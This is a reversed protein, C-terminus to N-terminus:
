KKYITRNEKLEKRVFAVVIRLLAFNIPIDMKSQIDHLFYINKKELIVKVKNYTDDNTYYRYNIVFGKEIATQILEAIKGNNTELKAAITSISYGNKFMNEIQFILDEFGMAGDPTPFEQIKPTNKVNTSTNKTIDKKPKVFEKEINEYFNNQIDNFAYEKLFYERSPSFLPKVEKKLLAKGTQTISIVPYEGNSKEMYKLEIYKDIELTIDVNSLKKLKGFYKGKQFDYKEQMKNKAGKLYTAITTRGFRGNLELTASLIIDRLKTNIMDIGLCSSCKKCKDNHSKDAFYDLIFNRKCKSTMAYEIMTKFKRSALLKRKESKEFDINLETFAVKPILIKISNPQVIDQFEIISQRVLIEMGKIFDELKILYKRAILEINLENFYNTPVEIYTRILADLIPQAKANLSPIAKALETKTYCFRIKHYPQTPVRAIIGLINLQKLIYSIKSIDIKLVKCFQEKSYMFIDKNFSYIYDYLMEVEEPTPYANDIFWEQIKKDSFNWLMYCNAPRGDRGARGAEQYYSEINSTLSIHIVNRVDPKDIGMGFANTAIIVKCEDNIFKDQNEKRVSPELGAHYHTISVDNDLLYNYFDETLKRSPAYIITSGNKTKNIIELVEEKKQENNNSYKTYYSLNPRDFGKVLLNPASMNLSSIIDNQVDPTATATLAIINSINIPLLVKAINLYAPRFDHGWESICHAEDVALFSIKLDILLRLFYDNNLREPAIYILKYQENKAAVMRDTYEEITLSSNIFTAPYKIKILSDYQNKMLAILPSIVIAVGDMLLAPLQYCLSKGGGTPMVVLTDKKNLISQIVEEQGTLFKKYGFYKELQETLEM